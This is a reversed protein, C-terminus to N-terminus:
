RKVHPAAALPRLGSTSTGEISPNPMPRLRLVIKEESLIEYESFLPVESEGVLLEGLRPNECGIVELELNAGMGSAVQNVYKRYTVIARVVAHTHRAASADKAKTPDILLAFCDGLRVPDRHVMGFVSIRGPSKEITEVSFEIHRM